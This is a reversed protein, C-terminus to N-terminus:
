SYTGPAVSPEYGKPEAMTDSSCLGEGAYPLGHTFHDLACCPIPARSLPFLCRAQYLVVSPVCPLEGERLLRMPLRPCASPVGHLLSVEGLRRCVLEKWRGCWVVKGLPHGLDGACVM